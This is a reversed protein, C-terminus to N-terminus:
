PRAEGVDARAIQGSAVDRGADDVRWELTRDGVVFEIALAAGPRAPGTFKVVALRPAQGLCASLAPEARAAELVEALLAVGPLIPRGPFHGDFGPHDPAVAFTRRVVVSSM